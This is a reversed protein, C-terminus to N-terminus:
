YYRYGQKTLQNTFANNKTSQRNEHIIVIDTRNM